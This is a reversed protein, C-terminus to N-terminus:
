RTLRASATIEHRRKRASTNRSTTTSSRSYPSAIDLADLDSDM